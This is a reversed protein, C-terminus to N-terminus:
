FQMVTTKDIFMLSDHGLKSLKQSIVECCPDLVLFPQTTPILHFSNFFTGPLMALIHLLLNEKGRRSEM